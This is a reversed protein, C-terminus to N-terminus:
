KLLEPHRKLYEWAWQQINYAFGELISGVNTAPYIIKEYELGKVVGDEDRLYQTRTDKFIYDRLLKKEEKTLDKLRRKSRYIFM